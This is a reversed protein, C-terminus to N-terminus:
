PRDRTLDLYAKLWMLDIAENRASIDLLKIGGEGFKSYLVDRAIRPHKDGNWIFSIAMDTLKKEVEAPMGQAMALFQTRGGFEMGAILRRGKLTPNGQSWKDLRCEITRIIATWPTAEPANNGIWAGLSRIAEGEKVIHVSEPIRTSAGNMKRSQVLRTRYELSGMPLVETKSTNFKARSARCWKSTIAEMEEYDDDESLYVTTDDAFLKAILREQGGPVSIGRLTSSRFSAALPEIALDFLLCSM